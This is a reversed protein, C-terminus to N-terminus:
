DLMPSRTTEMILSFNSESRPTNFSQSRKRKKLCIIKSQVNPRMIFFACHVSKCHSHRTQQLNKEPTGDQVDMPIISLAPGGIRLTVVYTDKLANIPHSGM